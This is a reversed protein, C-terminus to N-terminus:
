EEDLQYPQPELHGKFQYRVRVTFIRKPPVPRYDIEEIKEPTALQRESLTLAKWIKAKFEALKQREPSELAPSIIAERVLLKTSTTAVCTPSSSCISTM